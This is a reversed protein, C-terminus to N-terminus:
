PSNSATTAASSSCTVTAIAMGGVPEAWGTGCSSHVSDLPARRMKSVARAGSQADSDASTRGPPRRRPGAACEARAAVGRTEGVSRAM